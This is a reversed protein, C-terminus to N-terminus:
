SKETNQSSDKKENLKNFLVTTLALGTLGGAAGGSIGGLVGGMVAGLPGGTALGQIGGAFMGGTAGVFTSAGIVGIMFVGATARFGVKLGTEIEEDTLGGAMVISESCTIGLVLVAFLINKINMM